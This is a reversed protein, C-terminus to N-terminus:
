DNCNEGGAMLVTNVPLYMEQNPKMVLKCGVSVIQLETKAQAVDTALAVSILMGLAYTTKLFRM